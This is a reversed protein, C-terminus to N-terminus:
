LYLNGSWILDVLVLGYLDMLTSCRCVCSYELIGHGSCLVTQVRIQLDVVELGHDHSRQGVFTSVGMAVPHVGVNVAIPHLSQKDGRGEEADCDKTAGSESEARRSVFPNLVAAM